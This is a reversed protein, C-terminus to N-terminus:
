KEKLSNEKKQLEAQLQDINRVQSKELTKNKM